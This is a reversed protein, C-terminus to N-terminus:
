CIFLKNNLLLKAKGHIVSDGDVVHIQAIFYMKSSNKSIHTRYEMYIMMIRFFIIMQIIFVSLISMIDWFSSFCQLKM